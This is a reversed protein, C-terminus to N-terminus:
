PVLVQKLDLVTRGSDFAEQADVFAEPHEHGRLYVRRLGGSGYMGDVTQGDLM